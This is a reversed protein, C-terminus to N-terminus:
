LYSRATWHWYYVNIVSLSEAFTSTKNQTKKLYLIKKQMNWSLNASQLVLLVELSQISTMYPLLLEEAWLQHPPLQMSAAILLLEANQLMQINIQKQFHASRM